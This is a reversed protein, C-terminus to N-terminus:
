MENMTALHAVEDETLAHGHVKVDDFSAEFAGRDFSRAELVGDLYLRLETGDDVLAVHHRTGDIEMSGTWTTPEDDLGAFIKVETPGAALGAFASPSLGHEFVRTVDPGALGSSYIRVEDIKGPFYSNNLFSEGIHLPNEVSITQSPVNKNPAAQAGDVFLRLKDGKYTGLVHHWQGDDLATYGRVNKTNVQFFAYGNTDLYLCYGDSTTDRMDIISRWGTSPDLKIWASLTVRHPNALLPTSAFDIGDNLGDLDIANGRTGSTWTPGDLTGDYGSTSQDYTTVGSSEDFPWYGALDQLPVDPGYGFDFAEAEEGDSLTLSAEHASAVGDPDYTEVCGNPVTTEAVRIKYDDGTLTDFSFAGDAATTTTEVATYAGTQDDYVELTVSVAALGGEWFNRVGSNNVDDWVIGSISGLEQYGFNVAVADEGTQIILAVEHPSIIGDSDFTPTFNDVAAEDVHVNYTGALLDGFTYNGASDTTDMDLHVFTGNEFKELFVAIGEMGPEGERTGNGNEDEWLTGSISGPGQYGFDVGGFDEGTAIVVAAQPEPPNSGFGFTQTYAQPIAAEDIVVNYTGALLDDFTYNGLSNTTATQILTLNGNVFQELFINISPWGSEGDRVGNGNEDKWLSGSISGPGQYGFDVGTVNEGTNILVAAQPEPPSSGFGFTQTYTQPIAAEDVVVQYTGGLLGGFTFSGSANTTAAMVYVFNGNIYRELFVNVSPWGPEGDRVSNGNEDKWLFGSISGPGQYGFDVGTFDEGTGISLGAEPVPITSGFSFTQTYTQPIAAEDIRVTYTGALLGSFTYNGSADTTATQALVLNGNVLEELFMAVNPFGPEGDRVGDGNEDEWLSGSISGPGQYGFDVATISDNNSFIMAEHPSELGDIDYVQTFNAPIGAADVRVNYTAPTLIEFSFNGGGDTTQSEILTLGGNEFKELYVDVVLGMSVGSPLGNGDLDNWVMGSISGGQGQYGFDVNVVNGGAGLTVVAKNPTAIGDFDYTPNYNEPIGSTSVTILYTDAEKGSFTYNGMGDAQTLHTPIPVTNLDSVKQLTVYVGGFGPEGTDQVGNGNQDDWVTGSISGTQALTPGALVLLFLAVLIAKYKSM